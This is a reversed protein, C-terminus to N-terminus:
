NQHGHINNVQFEKTNNLPTAMHVRVNSGTSCIETVWLPYPSQKTEKMNNKFM